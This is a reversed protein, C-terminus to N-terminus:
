FVEDFFSRLVDLVTAKREKLIGIFIVEGVIAQESRILLDATEKTDRWAWKEGRWDHCLNSFKVRCRVLDGKVAIPTTGDMRIIRDWHEAKVAPM